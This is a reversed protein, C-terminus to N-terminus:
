ADEIEVNFHKELENTYENCELWGRAEHCTLVRIGTSGVSTGAEEGTKGYPSLPGGAFEMFWAGKKTKYLDEAFHNFDNTYGSSESGVLEATNTNYRKGDIIRIM